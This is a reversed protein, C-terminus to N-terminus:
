LLSTLSYILALVTLSGVHNELRPLFDVIQAEPGGIESFHFSILQATQYQQSYIHKSEACCQRMEM